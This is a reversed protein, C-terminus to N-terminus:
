ALARQSRRAFTSLLSFAHGLRFVLAFGTIVRVPVRYLLRSLQDVRLAPLVGQDLQAVHKSSVRSIRVGIVEQPDGEVLRAFDFGRAVGISRAQPESRTM